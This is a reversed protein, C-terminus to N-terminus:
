NWPILCMAVVLKGESTILDVGVDSTRQDQTIEFSIRGLELHTISCAFLALLCLVLIMNLSELVVPWMGNTHTRRTVQVFNCCGQSPVCCSKPKNCLNTLSTIWTGLRNATSKALFLTPKDPFIWHDCPRMQVKQDLMRQFTGQHKTKLRANEKTETHRCVDKNRTEWLDIFWRMYVKVMSDTWMYRARTVDSPAGNPLQLVSWETLIHGM